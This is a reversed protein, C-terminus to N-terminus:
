RPPRPLRRGHGGAGGRRPARLRRVRPAGTPSRPRDREQAEEDASGWSLTVDTPPGPWSRPSRPPPGSNEFSPPSTRTSPASATSTPAGASPAAGPDDRGPALRPAQERDADIAEDRAHRMVPGGAVPERRPDGAPPRLARLHRMGAPPGREPRPGPRGGLELAARLPADAPGGSRGRGAGGLADQFRM